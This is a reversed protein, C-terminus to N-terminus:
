IIIWWFQALVIWNFIAGCTFVCGLPLVSMHAEGSHYSQTIKLSEATSKDSEWGCFSITDLAYCNNVQWSWCECGYHAHDCHCMVTLCLPRHCFFCNRPAPSLRYIGSARCGLEHWTPEHATANNIYSLKNIGNCQDTHRKNIVQIRWSKNSGQHLCWM